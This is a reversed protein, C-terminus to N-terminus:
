QHDYEVTLSGSSATSVSGNTVIYVYWDGSPNEGNFGTFNYTGSSSVSVYKDTGNPSVVHLKCSSGSLRVYVSVKTISPNTGVISGSTVHCINSSGYNLANLKTLGKTFYNHTSTIVVPSEEIIPNEASSTTEAAFVTISCSLCLLICTIFTALKKMMEKVERTSSSM